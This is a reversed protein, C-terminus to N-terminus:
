YGKSDLWELYRALREVLDPTWNVGCDAVYDLAFRQYARKASGFRLCRKNGFRRDQIVYAPVIDVRKGM